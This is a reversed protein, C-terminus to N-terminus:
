LFLMKPIVDIEFFMWVERIAYATPPTYNFTATKYSFDLNGELSRTGQLKWVTFNRHHSRDLRFSLWNLGIVSSSAVLIPHLCRTRDLVGFPRTPRSARDLEGFPWIASSSSTSQGGKFLVLMGEAVPHQNVESRVWDFWPFSVWLEIKHWFISEILGHSPKWGYSFM